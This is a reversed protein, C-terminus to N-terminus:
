LWRNEDMDFIRMNEGCIHRRELGDAIVGSHSGLNIMIDRLIGIERV